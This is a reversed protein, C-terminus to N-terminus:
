DDASGPEMRPPESILFSYLKGHSGIWTRHHIASEGVVPQNNVRVTPSDHRTRLGIRKRFFRFSVGELGPLGLERGFVWNKFFVSMVRRRRLKAFDVMPEDRDNYLYGYPYARTLWYAVGAMLALLALSPIGVLAWPFGSPARITRPPPTVLPAAALPVAAQPTPIPRAVPVPERSTVIVPRPAPITFLVRESAPAPAISTIVIQDPSFTHRRGAYEVSLAFSLSHQGEGEPTFYIDYLWARGDSLIRRPLVELTGPQDASSILSSSLENDALAYAQGALQISLSAVRTRTGSELGDTRLPSVEITPFEQARFSAHSTITHSYKQWSLEMEVSYRGYDTLPSITASFYGDGAVADGLLGADNLEYSLTKGGPSTIRAVLTVSDLVVMERNSTAYAVLPTPENLPIAGLDSLVVGYKNAAYHWASVLGEAGRVDVKWEGPAPDILRWIVVHPTEVVSSATRDGSSAEFGLPNSLRLSGSRGEKFFMLTAESTGPAISLTSTLVTDSSLIAESVQALSGKAENRLIRDAVGRFGDPISLGIWEGGSGRSVIDLFEVVEPAAGPLSIGV